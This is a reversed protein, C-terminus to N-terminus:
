STDQELLTKGLFVVCHGWGPSSGLGSAGSVLVSVILGDLRRRPSLRQRACEQAVGSKLCASLMTGLGPKQRLGSFSTPSSIYSNNPKIPM